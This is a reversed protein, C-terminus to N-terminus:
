LSCRRAGLHRIAVAAAGSDGRGVALSLDRSAATGTGLDAFSSYAVVMAVITAVGYDAPGLLAAVVLGKLLGLGRAVTVSTLIDVVARLLSGMRDLGPLRLTGPM